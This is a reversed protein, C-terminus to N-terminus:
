KWGFRETLYQEASDQTSSVMLEILKPIEKGFDKAVDLFKEKDKKIKEKDFKASFTSIIIGPNTDYHYRRIYLDELLKKKVRKSNGKVLVEGLTSIEGALKVGEHHLLNNPDEYKHLYDCLCWWRIINKHVNFSDQRFEERSDAMARVKNAWDIIKM